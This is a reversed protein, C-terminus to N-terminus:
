NDEPLFGQGDKGAGHESREQAGKLSSSLKDDAQRQAKQIERMENMLKEFKDDDM